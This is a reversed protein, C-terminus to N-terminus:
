ALSISVLAIIVTHFIAISQLWHTLQALHNRATASTEGGASHRLTWFPKSRRWSSNESSLPLDEMKGSSSVRDNFPTRLMRM